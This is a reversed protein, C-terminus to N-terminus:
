GTVAIVTMFAAHRDRQVIQTSIPDVALGLDAM